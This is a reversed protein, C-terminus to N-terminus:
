PYPMLILYDPIPRLIPQRQNLMLGVIWGIFASLVLMAALGIPLSVLLTLLFYGGIPLFLNDLGGWSVAEILTLLLALLLAVWLVQGPTLDTLFLLGLHTSLFAIVMFALSGEVSKTSQGLCYHFRGYFIGVLAAAADGLAFILLPIAYFPTENRALLFLIAISLPFYLDGWSNKRQVGHVVCGFGERLSSVQRLALMLPITLAALLLMPWVAEFLWPLSLSTLGMGVHLLKRPLEPHLHYRHQVWRLGGILSGLALLIGGIGVWPNLWITM